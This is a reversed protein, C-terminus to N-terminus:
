TGGDDNGAAGALLGYLADEPQRLRGRKLRRDTATAAAVAAFAGGGARKGRGGAIGAMRNPNSLGLARGIAAPDIGHGAPLVAGLEIQQYVQAALKAPEEGANLLRALEPLGVELQGDEAAEVFRFIRDDPVGAVLTRVHEQGVPVPHAAMVLKGIENRLLETDPPRDYRPNTPKASWTQPYLTEVLLRAARGDIEGGAERATTSLWRLLDHGRPPEAAIVMTGAPAARKVAAPISALTADVLVLLNDDPVAAFLPALDLAPEGAGEAEDGDGTGAKSSRTARAMLDHVVVVRRGGFFGVSGVAAAVQAVSVDRGELSSTNAAAPDHTALLKALEVRALGADPGHVLAIM